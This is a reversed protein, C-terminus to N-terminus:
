IGRRFKMSTVPLIRDVANAERIPANTIRLLGVSIIQRNVAVNRILVTGNTSVRTYFYPGNRLASMKRIEGPKEILVRVEVKYTHKQRKANTARIRTRRNVRATIDRPINWGSTQSTVCDRTIVPNVSRWARIIRQCRDHKRVTSAVHTHM